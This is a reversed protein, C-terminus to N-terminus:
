VVFMYHWLMVCVCVNRVVFLPNSNYIKLTKVNLIVLLHM